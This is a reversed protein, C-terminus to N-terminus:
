DHAIPQPTAKMPTLVIDEILNSSTKLQASRTVASAKASGVSAHLAPLPFEALRTLGGSYRKAATPFRARRSLRGAQPFHLTSRSEQRKQNSLVQGSWQRIQAIRVPSESGPEYFEDGTSDVFNEESLNEEKELADGPTQYPCAASPRGRRWEFASSSVSPALKRQRPTTARRHELGTM